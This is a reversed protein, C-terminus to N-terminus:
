DGDGDTYTIYVSLASPMDTKLLVLLQQIKLYANDVVTPNSVVDSELPGPILAILNKLETFRTQILSSLSTGGNTAGIFDLYDDFGQGNTGSQSRGLFANELAKVKETLLLLSNASYLAECKEPMPVGLTQKGLPIGVRANKMVEFDFNLENVMNSLSNGAANGTAANFTATYSSNWESVLINVRSKLDTCLDSLYQRRNATTTFLAAIAVDTKNRGYLIFDLAPFGIADAQAASTLDYTGSSINSNVQTTDCPFINTSSRFSHNAAPGFEFMGVYMYQKYASLFASRVLALNSVSPSTIFVQAQLELSDTKTKLSTYAPVILNSSYNHFMAAQDYSASPDPQEPEKTKKCSVILAASLVILLIRQM